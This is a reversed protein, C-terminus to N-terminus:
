HAELTVSAHFPVGRFPVQSMRRALFEAYGAVIRVFAFDTVKNSVVLLKLRTRFAVLGKKKGGLAARILVLVEVRAGLAARAVVGV